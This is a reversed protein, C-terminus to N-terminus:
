DKGPRIGLRVARSLRICWSDLGGDLGIRMDISSRNWGPDLRPGTVQPSREGILFRHGVLRVRSVFSPVCKLMTASLTGFMRVTFRLIIQVIVTIQDRRCGSSTATYPNRSAARGVWELETKAIIVHRFSHPIVRQGHPRRPCGSHSSCRALFALIRVASWGIGYPASCIDPFQLFDRALRFRGSAQGATAWTM